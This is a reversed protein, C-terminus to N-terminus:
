SKPVGLIVLAKATMTCPRIASIATFSENVLSSMYNM